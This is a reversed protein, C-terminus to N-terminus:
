KNKHFDKTLEIMRQQEIANKFSFTKRAFDAYKKTLKKNVATISKIYSDDIKQNGKQTFLQLLGFIPISVKPDIRPYLITLNEIVFEIKEQPLKDIDSLIFLTSFYILGSDQNSLNEDSKKFQLFKSSIFEYIDDRLFISSFSLNCLQLMGASSIIKPVDFGLDSIIFQYKEEKLELIIKSALDIIFQKEEKESNWGYQVLKGLMFQNLLKIIKPDNSKENFQIIKELEEKTIRRRIGIYFNTVDEWLATIYLSYVLDSKEIGIENAREVFYKAIFFDLFSKHSFKVKKSSIQLLDVRKLDEIFEKESKITSHNSVYDTVFDNFNEKTIETLNNEFFVGFALEKLFDKKIQYGYFVEIDTSSLNKGLILDCYREYLESISAPIENHQKIIEILMTLSMPYLPIQNGLNELGKILSDLLQTNKMFAKKLYGIIQSTELALLEYYSFDNLKQRTETNKRGLFILSIDVNNCYKRIAEIIKNKNEDTVEDIGDIIIINTQMKIASDNYYNDIIEPIKEVNGNKLDTASLLIPAEIELNTTETVKLHKIAKDITSMILKYALVSKGSGADGEIYITKQGRACDDLIDNITKRKGFVSDHIEKNAKKINSSHSLSILEKKDSQYFKLMPEIYNESFISKKDKLFIELEEYKETLAELGSAGYFVEPYAESFFKVIEDINKVDYRGSFQNLNTHLNLEAQNSIEGFIFIFVKDAKVRRNNEKIYTERLFAQETQNRIEQINKDYANGSLKDMKVVVAIDHTGSLPDNQSIILDKGNEERGHTNYINTNNPYMKEFLIKLEKHMDVEKFGKLIDKKQGETLKLKGM